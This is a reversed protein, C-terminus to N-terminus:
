QCGSPFDKQWVRNCGASNTLPIYTTQQPIYRQQIFVVKEDRNQLSDHLSTPRVSLLSTFFTGLKNLCPCYLANSSVAPNVNSSIRYIWISSLTSFSTNAYLVALKRHHLLWLQVMPRTVTFTQLDYVSVGCKRYSEEPRTILEDSFRTDSFYVGYVLSSCRHGWRPQFGRNRCDLPM